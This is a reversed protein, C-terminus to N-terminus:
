RGLRYVDRKADSAMLEVPLTRVYAQLQESAADRNVILYRCPGGAADQALGPVPRPGDAHEGARRSLRLLESTVPLAEYRRQADAPM